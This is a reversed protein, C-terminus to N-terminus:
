IRFRFLLKNACICVILLFCRTLVCLFCSYPNFHHFLSRLRAKSLEWYCRGYHRSLSAFDTNAKSSIHIATASSTILHPNSSSSLSSSSRAYNLNHSYSSKLFQSCLSSISSRRLMMPQVLNFGFCWFCEWVNMACANTKELKLLQARGSTVCILLKPKTMMIPWHPKSLAKSGM